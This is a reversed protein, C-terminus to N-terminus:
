CLVQQLLVVMAGCCGVALLAGCSVGDSSMSSGGHLFRFVETSRPTDRWV